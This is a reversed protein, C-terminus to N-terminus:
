ILTEERQKKKLQKNYFWVMYILFLLIIGNFIILGLVMSNKKIDVDECYISKIFEPDRDDVLSDIKNLFENYTCDQDKKGCFPFTEGNYLFKVFYNNDLEYLEFILNAAFLPTLLCIDENEKGLYINKLCEYNSFNLLVMLNYINMDHGAFLVFKQYDEKKDIKEKADKIYNKFSLGIETFLYKSLGIDRFISYYAEMSQLVQLKRQYEEGVTLKGLYVNAIFYDYLKYFEYLNDVSDKGLVSQFDVGIRKMEEVEERVYGMIENSVKNVKSTFSKLKPCLNANFSEFMYNRSKEFSHVPVPQFGDPLATKYEDKVDFNEWEPKYFEENVEIPDNLSGFDYLGVMFAQASMITRDLSSALIFNQKFNFTKPFFLPYKERTFQGLLYCQRLGNNTLQGKLSPSSTLPHRSGHRIFMTIMKTKQSTITTLLTLYLLFQM